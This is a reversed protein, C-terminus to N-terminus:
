LFFMIILFDIRVLIKFIGLNVVWNLVINRFVVNVRIYYDIKSVILLWM